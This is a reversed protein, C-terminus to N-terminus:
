TSLVLGRGRRTLSMLTKGVGVFCACDGPGAAAASLLEVNQLGAMIGMEAVVEALRLGGQRTAGYSSWAYRRLSEESRLIRARAPNLHVYDCATRLYGNGSGDVPLAKYRGSFLHGV